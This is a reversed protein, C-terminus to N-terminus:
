RRVTFNGGREGVIQGKYDYFVVELSIEESTEATKEIVAYTPVDFGRPMQLSGPNLFLIGREVTCVPFHSHGFLVVNAGVEEARYHLQLLSRKVGYLHGHTQYFTLGNWSTKREEPVDTAFDCNGRVLQMGSFPERNKDVCFDGCHFIVEAPHRGVVDQVERVLGHTDSLVLISM